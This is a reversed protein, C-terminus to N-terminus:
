RADRLAAEIEALLGKVTADDPLLSAATRAEALARTLEGRSALAIALNHHADGLKPDLQTAASFQVVAADVAGRGLMLAGLQVRLDAADPDFRVAEILHREAADSRGATFERRGLVRHFEGLARHVRPQELLGLREAAALHHRIREAEADDAFASAKAADFARLGLFAHYRVFASHIALAMMGAFAAAFVIGAARTRGGSRLPIRAFRVDQGRMWRVFLVAALSLVIAITISLFFPIIDYLGRLVALLACFLVGLALDEPWSFDYLRRVPRAPGASTILGPLGVGVYLRQEPCVAVCDLDKLCRPDVITGYRAIEEHVRVRSDCVSTCVGCGDCSGRARIRVPALRDALGFVAGYPCAYNCFARTGLFYVAAFGVTVFTLIAIGPGPLNRTYNETVFSAWGEADGAVRFGPWPRGAAIREVQPWVFMYGAVAIPIWLFVRSRIPRPPVHLKRLIWASLDQLAVIHCGWSCFFRGFILTSLIAIAMFIFGATVIGLEATYMVENLELPALTRRAVLWHAFHAAMIAYVGVLVWARKRAFRTPDPVKTTPHAHTM